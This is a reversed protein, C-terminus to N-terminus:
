GFFRELGIIKGEPFPVRLVVWFVLYSTMTGLFGILIAMWVRKEGAMWAMLSVWLFTGLLFGLHPLLLSYGIFTAYIALLSPIKEIKGEGKEARQLFLIVSSILLLFLIGKPYVMADTAWTRGSPREPHYAVWLMFLSFFVLFAAGARNLNKARFIM